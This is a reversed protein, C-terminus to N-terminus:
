SNRIHCLIRAASEKVEEETFSPLYSICGGSVRYGRMKLEEAALRFAKERKRGGIVTVFCVTQRNMLIKWIIHRIAYPIQRLGGEFLFVSASGYGFISKRNLYESAKRCEVKEYKQFEKVYRCCGHNTDDYYFTVWNM